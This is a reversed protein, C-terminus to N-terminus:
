MRRVLHSSYSFSEGRLRWWWQSQKGMEGQFGGTVMWWKRLFWAKAEWSRSDWPTGISGGHGSGWCVLGGNDIDDALEKLSFSPTTSDSLKLLALVRDRFSPFPITDLWFTHPIERQSPTPRLDRGIDPNAPPPTPLQDVPMSPYHLISQLVFPSPLDGQLADAKSVGLMAANDLCASILSIHPATLHNLRPDSCYPYITFTTATNSSATATIRQNQVSTIPVISLQQIVSTDSGSAEHDTPISQAGVPVSATEQQTQRTAIVELEQM